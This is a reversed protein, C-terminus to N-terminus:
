YLAGRWGHPPNFPRGLVPHIAEFSTEAGNMTVKQEKFDATVLPFELEPNLAERVIPILRPDYGMLRCAALDGLAVNDSFVLTGARAPSPSLPGQGEGAVIGDILLLNQRALTSQLHGDASTYHVIRALDLAMRWCTDNGNWSGGYIAGFRSLVRNLNRDLVMGAPKWPSPRAASNLFDHFRSQWLRLRGGRPYEDGGERASGFRHHALCDKHGVVGVFGKLGCTIGVKEHTKLKPVSIVVDSELIERRVLYAHRTSCQLRETAAPDYDTVRFRVAMNAERGSVASLLSHSTFNIDKCLQASDFAKSEIINGLVSRRHMFTRLDVARVTQAHRAYFEEVAGAGTERM